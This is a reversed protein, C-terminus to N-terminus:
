VTAAVGLLVVAILTSLGVTNAMGGNGTEAAASSETASATATESASSSISSASEAAGSSSDASSSAESTASASIATSAPTITEATSATVTTSTSNSGGALDPLDLEVGYAICIASSGEATLVSDEPSCLEPIQAVLSDVFENNNCMCAVDTLPCGSTQIAELIAQQGCQPLDSITGVQALVALAFALTAVACLKVARM